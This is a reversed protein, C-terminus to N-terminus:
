MYTLVTRGTTALPTNFGRSGSNGLGSHDVLTPAPFASSAKQLFLTHETSHPEGKLRFHQVPLYCICLKGIEGNETFQQPADM